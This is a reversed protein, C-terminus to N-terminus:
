WDLLDFQVSIILQYKNGDQQQKNWCPQDHSLSLSATFSQPSNLQFLFRCHLWHQTKKKLTHLPKIYIINTFIPSWDYRSSIPYQYRSLIEYRLMGILDDSAHAEEIAHYEANGSLKVHDVSIFVCSHRKIECWRRSQMLEPVTLLTYLGRRSGTGTLM